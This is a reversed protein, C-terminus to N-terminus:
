KRSHWRLVVRDDLVFLSSWQFLVTNSFANGQIIRVVIKMSQDRTEFYERGGFLFCVEEGSLKKALEVREGGLSIETIWYGNNWFKAFRKWWWLHESTYCWRFIWFKWTQILISLRQQFMANKAPPLDSITHQFNLTLIRFLEVAIFSNKLSNRSQLKSFSINRQLNPIFHKKM